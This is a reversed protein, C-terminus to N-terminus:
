GRLGGHRKGVADGHEGADHEPKPQCQSTGDPGGERPSCLGRHSREVRRDTRVEGEQLLLQFAVHRYGRASQGVVLPHNRCRRRALRRPGVEGRLRERRRHHRGLRPPDRGGGGADAVPEIAPRRPGRPPRSRGPRGRGGDDRHAAVHDSHAHSVFVREPGIVPEHPDLWLGLEPFHLGGAAFQEPVFSGEERVLMGGAHSVEAM